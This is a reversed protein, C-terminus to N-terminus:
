PSNGHLWEALLDVLTAPLAALLSLLFGVLISTSLRTTKNQGQSIKLYRLYPLSAGYQLSIAISIAFDLSVTTFLHIWAALLFTFGTVWFYSWERIQYCFVWPFFFGIWAFGAVSGRSPIIRTGAPSVLYPFANMSKELRYGQQVLTHIRQLRQTMQPSLRPLDSRAAVAPQRASISAAAVSSAAESDDWGLVGQLLARLRPLLAPHFSLALEALLADRQAAAQAQNRELALRRFAPLLILERLPARLSLDEALLDQLLAQLQQPSLTPDRRMLEGLQAGLHQDVATGTGTGAAM